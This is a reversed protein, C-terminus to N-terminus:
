TICFLQVAELFMDPKPEKNKTIMQTIRIGLFSILQLHYYEQINMRVQQKKSSKAETKPHVLQGGSPPPPCRPFARQKAHQFSFFLVPSTFFIGPPPTPRAGSPGKSLFLAFRMHRLPEEWARAVAGVSGPVSLPTKSYKEIDPTHSAHV